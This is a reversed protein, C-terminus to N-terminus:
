NADTHDEYSQEITPQMKIRFSSLSSRGDKDTLNSVESMPSM